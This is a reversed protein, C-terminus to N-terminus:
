PLTISGLLTRFVSMDTPDATDNPPHQLYFIYGTGAAVVGAGGVRIGGPGPCNQVTLHAPEGDITIAADVEVEITSACPHKAAADALQDAWFSTLSKTTPTAMAWANTGTSSYFQDVEAADHGPSGVGNWQIFAQKGTWGAPLAISYGYKESTFTSPPATVVPLITAPPASPPSSRTSPQASGAPSTAGPATTAAPATCASLLTMAGALALLRPRRVDLEVRSM